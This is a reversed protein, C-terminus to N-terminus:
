NFIASLKSKSKPKEVKKIKVPEPKKEIIIEEDVNIVGIFPKKEPEDEETLTESIKVAVPTKIKAVDTWPIIYTDAAILELKVDYRKSENIQFVVDKLPPIEVIIKDDMTSIPFGYEIGEITLRLAGRLDRTQAGSISIGFKLKKKENSNINLM